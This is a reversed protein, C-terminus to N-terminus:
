QDVEAGGGRQELVAVPEVSVARAAVAPRLDVQGCHDGGAQPIASQRYLHM